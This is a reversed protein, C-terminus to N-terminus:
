GSTGIVSHLEIQYLAQNPTLLNRTWIKGNQNTVHCVLFWFHKIVKLRVVILFTDHLAISLYVLPYLLYVTFRNGFPKTLEFRVRDVMIIKARTHSIWVRAYRQINLKITFCVAWLPKVTTWNWWYGGNNRRNLEIPLVTSKYDDSLREFRKIPMQINLKTTSCVAWLPKVNTRGWWYGGNHFM